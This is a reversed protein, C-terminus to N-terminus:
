APQLNAFKTVEVMDLLNTEVIMAKHLKRRDISLFIAMELM